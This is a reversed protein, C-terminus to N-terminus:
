QCCSYPLMARSCLGLALFLSNAGNEEMATRATRYLFKVANKLETDSLYSMLRKNKLEDRTLTELESAQLSSDYMGGETPEIQAKPYPQMAFSKGEQLEDELHEIGFSVFPIVRKGLKTNILNNRLSFDLLKREWITQKTVTRKDEDIKLAYHDLREVKDTANEHKLGENGVIWQGNHEIRQPLPRVNSLRCRHVDIFLQFREEDKLSNVALKVSDDFSVKESSTLSTTEVLVIDNVGDACKKLLFSADDGINQAYIDETLWAGVFIHGKLLVLIPFLGVSELCSAYLVSSDLCTALKETLVSDALRIRQGMTEFSAPPAVYVVGEERLAEYIAAVQLRARHRDQTQYEDMASSGTWKEMYKSANVIVRSLIPHNPTVFSALLEPRVTSGTWQNYAMLSIPFDHTLLVDEGASITLTFMTDVMETMNLLKDPMPEIKLAALQVRQGAPVCDTFQVSPKLFDGTVEVKVARWDIEEKNEVECLNCTNVKNLLMSYNVCPLYDLRLSGRHNNSFDSIYDM